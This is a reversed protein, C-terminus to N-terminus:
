NTWSIKSIIAEAIAKHGADNPHFADSLGFETQVDKPGRNAPVAKAGTLDVYAGDVTECLDHIAVDFTPSDKAWTSACMFRVDPSSKKVMNFLNVYNAKFTELPVPVGVDNTGLEIIALDLNPPVEIIRDVTSLKGPGQKPDLAEAQGLQSLVLSKFSKDKTSAYYGVSLSDGAVMVRLPRGQPHTLQIKLSEQYAAERAEKQAAADKEFQEAKASIDPNSPAPPHSPGIVAFGVVGLTCAALAALGINGLRKMRRGDPM